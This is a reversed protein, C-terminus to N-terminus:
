LFTLINLTLSLLDYLFIESTTQTLSLGIPHDSTRPESSVGNQSLRSPAAPGIMSAGTPNVTSATLICKCGLGFRFHWVTRDSKLFFELRQRKFFDNYKFVFCSKQEMKTPFHAPRLSPLAKPDGCRALMTLTKVKKYLHSGQKPMLPQHSSRFSFSLTKQTKQLLDM